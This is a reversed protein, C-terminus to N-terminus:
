RVAAGEAPLLQVVSWKGTTKRVESLRRYNDSGWFKRLAEADPFEVIILSGPLHAGELLETDAQAARVLFEGGHARVVDPAFPAYGELFRKRDQIDALFFLYASRGSMRPQVGPVGDVQLVDLASAGVRIKKLEQYEPSWWFRKVEKESPFKLLILADGPVWGGEIVTMAYGTGAIVAKEYGHAKLIPTVRRMYERQVGRDKYWGSVLLYGTPATEARVTPTITALAVILVLIGLARM